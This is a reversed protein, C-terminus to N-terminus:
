TNSEKDSESFFRNASDVLKEIQPLVNKLTILKANLTPTRWNILVLRFNLETKVNFTQRLSERLLRKIRNRDVARKSVRKGASIGYYITNPLFKIKVPVKVQTPFSKIFFATCNTSHFKKGHKFVLPFTGYGKITKLQPINHVTNEM